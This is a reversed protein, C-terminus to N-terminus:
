NFRKELAEIFKNCTADCIEIVEIVVNPDGEMTAKWEVFTCDGRTVPLLAVTVIYNEVKGVPGPGDNIQYSFCHKDENLAILTEDVAGNLLRRAGVEHRCFKELGGLSEVSKINPAAWSMDHFDSLVKWVKPVPANLVTSNYCSNNEVKM